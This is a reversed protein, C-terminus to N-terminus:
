SAAAAARPRSRAAAASRRRHATATCRAATSRPRRQGDDGARLVQEVPRARGRAHGLRGRRGVSGDVPLRSAIRQSTTATPVSSSSPWITSVLEDHIPSCSASAPMSESSGSWPRRCGRGCRRPGACRREVAAVRHDHAAAEARGVVVDGAVHDGVTIPTSSRARRRHDGLADAGHEPRTTPSMGALLRRWASTGTPAVTM